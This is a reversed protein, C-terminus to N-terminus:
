SAKKETVPERSPRLVEISEGSSIGFTKSCVFHGEREYSAADKANKRSFFYATFTDSPALKTRQPISCENGGEKLLFGSIDQTEATTNKLIVHDPNHSSIGVIEIPAAPAAVIPPPVEPSPQKDGPGIAVVLGTIAAIVGAIGTLIGPLTSWFSGGEKTM